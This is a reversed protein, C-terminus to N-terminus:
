RSLRWREAEEDAHRQHRVQQIDDIEDGATELDIIKIACVRHTENDLGKFVEGFAGDGIKELVTYRASGAVDRESAHAQEQQTEM